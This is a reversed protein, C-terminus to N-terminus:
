FLTYLFPAVVPNSSTLAIIIAIFILLVPPLLWPKNKLFVLFFKLIDIM